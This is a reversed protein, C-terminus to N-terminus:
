DKRCKLGYEKIETLIQVAKDQKEHMTELHAKIEEQHSTTDHNFHQTLTDQQELLTAIYPPIEDNKSKWGIRQAIPEWFIIGFMVILFLQLLPSLGSAITLLGEM